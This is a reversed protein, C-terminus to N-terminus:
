NSVQNQYEPRPDDQFSIFPNYNLVIPLRSKLYMDFWPELLCLYFVHRSFRVHILKQNLKIWKTAIYFPFTQKIYLSILLMQGCVFCVQFIYIKECLVVLSNYESNSYSLNLKYFSNIFQKQMKCCVILLSIVKIIHRM